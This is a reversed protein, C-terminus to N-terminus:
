YYSFYPFDWHDWGYPLVPVEYPRDENKKVDGPSRLRVPIPTTRCEEEKRTNDEEM